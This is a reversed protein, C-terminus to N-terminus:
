ETVPRVSQGYNRYNNGRYFNGSYFYLYCAGGSYSPNQTSSWYGGDSGVYGTYDDSGYGAAPLFISAGNPGTVKRGYVGNVSTWESTCKSTLLGLQEYSPM